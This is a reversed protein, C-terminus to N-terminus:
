LRAHQPTGRSMAYILGDIWEHKTDGGAELALYEDFPIV